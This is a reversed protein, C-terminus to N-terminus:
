LKRIDEADVFGNVGTGKLQYPHKSKGLKYIRKVVANCPKATKAKSEAANANTYQKTGIFKVTEGLVPAYPEGNDLIDQVEARFDNMTYNFNKWWNTPDVHSSAYGALRAENHSTIHTADWGYKKCLSVCFEVAMNKTALFYDKNTCGDECIEFQIYQTPYYNYSGKKGAGCGWCAYNDPLMQACAVTGDALKGIMYHVEKKLTPRNWSNGNKNLGILNILNQYNPDSKSPQVYRKLTSNNAGTTHLLVGIPTSQIKYKTNNKVQGSSWLYNGSETHLCQIINM